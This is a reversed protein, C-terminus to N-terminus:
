PDLNVRIRLGPSTSEVTCCQTGGASGHPMHGLSAPGIPPQPPPPAQAGRSQMPKSGCVNRCARRILALAAKTCRGSRGGNCRENITRMSHTGYM